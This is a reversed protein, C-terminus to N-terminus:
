GVIAALKEGVDEGGDAIVREVEERKDALEPWRAEAWLVLRDHREDLGDGFTAALELVRAPDDYIGEHAHEVIKTLLEPLDDRATALAEGTGHLDALIACAATVAREDLAEVSAAALVQDSAPRLNAAFTVDNLMLADGEPTSRVRIVGLRQRSKAAWKVLLANGDRRMAVMLTRFPREFGPDPQLWFAGALRDTPVKRYDIVELLEVRDLKTAATAYEIESPPVVRFTDGVRKGKISEDLVEPVEVATLDGIQLAEFADDDLEDLNVGPPPAYLTRSRDPHVYQQVRPAGDPAATDFTIDDTGTAAVVGIPIELLDGLALTTRSVARM